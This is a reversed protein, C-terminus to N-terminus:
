RHDSDEEESFKLLLAQAIVENWILQAERNRSYDTEADYRNQFEALEENITRYIEKVEAKVDSTFQTKELQARMKRAFLESIDFHLQEHSLIIDSGLESHYWSKAPYFHTTVEYNIGINGDVKEYTFFSYSIGSATIAAAPSDEEPTGRFDEWSLRHNDEWLISEEQASLTIGAALFLLLWCTNLTGM